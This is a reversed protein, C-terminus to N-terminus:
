DQSRVRRTLVKEDGLLRYITAVFLFTGLINAVTDVITGSGSGGSRKEAVVMSAVIPHQQKLFYDMVEM